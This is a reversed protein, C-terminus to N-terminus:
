TWYHIRRRAIYAHIYSSMVVLRRPKDCMCYNHKLQYTREVVLLFQATNEVAEELESATVKAESM